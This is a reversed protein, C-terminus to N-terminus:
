EDGSQQTVFFGGRADDMDAHESRQQNPREEHAEKSSQVRQNEASGGHGRNNTDAHHHSLDLHQQVEPLEAQKQNKIAAIIGRRIRNEEKIKRARETRKAESLARERKLQV